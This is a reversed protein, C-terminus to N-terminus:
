PPEQSTRGSRGLAERLVILDPKERLAQDDFDYGYASVSARLEALRDRGGAEFWQRFGSTPTRFDKLLYHEGDNTGCSAVALRVLAGSDGDPYRELLAPIVSNGAFVDHEHDLRGLWRLITPLYQEGADALVLAAHGLAVTEEDYYLRDAAPYRILRELIDRLRDAAGPMTIAAAFYAPEDLEAGSRDRVIFRLQHGCRAEDLNEMVEMMRALGEFLAAGSRVDEVAIIVNGIDALQRRLDEPVITEPKAPAPVIPVEVEEASSTLAQPPIQLHWQVGHGAILLHDPHVSVLRAHEVDFHLPAAPPASQMGHGVLLPSCWTGDIAVKRATANRWLLWIADEDPLPHIDYLTEIATRRAAQEEDSGAPSQLAQALRTREQAYPSLDRSRLRRVPITRMTAGSRLDSLRIATTFRFEGTEDTTTVLPGWCPAIALGRAADVVPPEIDITTFPTDELPIWQVGGSHPNIRQFGHLPEHSPRSRSHGYFLLAGDSAEIIESLVSPYPILHKAVCTFHPFAFVTLHSDRSKVRHATYLHRGNRSLLAGSNVHGGLRHEFCCTRSTIDFARIWGDWNMVVFREPAYFSNLVIPEDDQRLPIVWILQRTGDDGRKFVRVVNISPKEIEVVYPFLHSM